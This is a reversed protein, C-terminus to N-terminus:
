CGVERILSYDVRLECNGEVTIYNKGYVFTPFAKNFKDGVFLNENTDSKVIMTETDITITSGVAVNKLIMEENNITLTLNAQNAKITYKPKIEYIGDQLCQFVIRTEGTCTKKIVKDEYAGISDCVAVAKFGIIDGGDLMYEPSEFICMFYLDRLDDSCIQLKRYGTVDFLWHSIRSILNREMKPNIKRYEDEGDGHFMIQIDLRLPETHEVGSISWRSSRSAKFTSYEKEPIGQVNTFGNAETYLMKMNESISSKSDFVFDYGKFM